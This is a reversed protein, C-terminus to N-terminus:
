RKKLIDRESKMSELHMSAEKRKEDWSITLSTILKERERLKDSLVEVQFQATKDIANLSAPRCKAGALQKKLVDIEARLDAVLKENGSTNIRAQNLIRKARDAYKLTSLSEDFSSSHPSVAAVMLTKANGGLSEKLLWTLISNRYPVFSDSKLCTVNRQNNKSLAEIVDALASLSRNINAAEKLRAGTVGSIHVRESGALDVIGLKAIKSLCETNSASPPQTQCVRMNFVAHSRSSHDNMNTAHTTRTRAGKSILESVDIYSEVAISLLDEVYVGTKPHERVRLGKNRKKALLDYVRENYIEYYSVQVRLINTARVNNAHSKERGFIAECLRPILGREDDARGLM